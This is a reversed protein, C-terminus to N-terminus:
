GAESPSRRLMTRHPIGDEDFVDGIGEFGFRGYFEQLHAQADLVATDDGIRELAVEILASSLGAGRVDARTVVRGIRRGVTDDLVRVSAAVGQDDSMWLHETTALLDRGDIEHYPCDQEVVFIDVRLRLLDHLQRASLQPGAVASIPLTRM